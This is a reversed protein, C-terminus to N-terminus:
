SNRWSKIKEVLEGARMLLPGARHYVERDGPLDYHASLYHYFQASHSQEIVLIRRVGRLAAAFKEPQAPALLRIALTRINNIGERSLRSMAERVPGTTSGWTIIALDGDGEIDAWHSGYDFGTIKLSRKDLQLAHNQATSSPTGVPTHELGTITHQGGPTGPIAM